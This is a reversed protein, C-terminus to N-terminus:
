VVRRIPTPGLDIPCGYSLNYGNLLTLSTARTCPGPAARPQPIPRWGWGMSVYGGGDEAGYRYSYGYKFGGVSLQTGALM